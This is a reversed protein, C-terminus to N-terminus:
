FMIPHGCHVSEAKKQLEQNHDPPSWMVKAPNELSLHAERLGGSWM